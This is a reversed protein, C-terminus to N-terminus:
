ILMMHITVTSVDIFSVRAYYGFGNGNFKEKELVSSFHLVVVNEGSVHRELLLSLNIRFFLTFYTIKM